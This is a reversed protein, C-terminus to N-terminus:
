RPLKPMKYLTLLLNDYELPSLLSIQRTSVRYEIEQKSTTQAVQDKLVPTSRGLKILQASTSQEEEEKWANKM